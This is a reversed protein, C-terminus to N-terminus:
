HLMSLGGDTSPIFLNVPNHVILRVYNRVESLGVESQNKFELWQKTKIETGVNTPKKFSM